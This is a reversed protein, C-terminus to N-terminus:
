RVIKWLRGVKEDINARLLVPNLQVSQASLRANVEIPLSDMAKVRRYPTKAQDYTRVTKGDIREKGVLKLVPQFFNIYLRLDSYISRLLALEEPTELRDYGITHRVVSWNKQEM